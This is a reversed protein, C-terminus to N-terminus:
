RRSDPKFNLNSGFIGLVMWTAETFHSTHPVTSKLNVSDRVRSLPPLRSRGAWIDWWWFQARISVICPRRDTDFYRVSLPWQMRWFLTVYFTWNDTRLRLHICANMMDITKIGTSGTMWKPIYVRLIRPAFPCLGLFATKQSIFGWNTSWLHCM